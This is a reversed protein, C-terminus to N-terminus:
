SKWYTEDWLLYQLSMRRIQRELRLLEAELQYQRTLDDIVVEAIATNRKKIRDIEGQISSRQRLTQRYSEKLDDLRMAEREMSFRLQDRVVKLRFEADAVRERGAFDVFDYSKSLGSFLIINDSSWDTDQNSVFLPPTSLGFNLVPWQQFKVRRTSLIAGELQVAYLNLALKGFDEGVEFDGYKKEYSIKPLGGSLIWNGGPTNFLRNVNVRHAKERRVLSNRDMEYKEIDSVVNGESSYLMMSWKKEHLERETRLAEAELFASYLDIYARRKDLEHSWGSGVQQLAASYLRAHFDFPNPISFNAILRTDLDDGNFDSLSGLDKSMQVFGGVRPILSMWQKAQLSQSREYLRKSRLVNINDSHMKHLAPAWTIRTPKTEKLDHILKLIEREREKSSVLLRNNARKTLCGSLLFLAVLTASSRILLKSTAQIMTTQRRM